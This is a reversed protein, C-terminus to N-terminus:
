IYINWCKDGDCVESPDCGQVEEQEVNLGCLPDDTRGDSCHSLTSMVAGAASSLDFEEMLEIAEERLFACDQPLDYGACLFDTLFIRCLAVLYTAAQQQLEGRSVGDVTFSLDKSSVTLFSPPSSTNNISNTTTATSVMPHPPFCEEVVSTSITTTTTNTTTTSPSSLTSSSSLSSSLSSSSSSASPFFYSRAAPSAHALFAKSNLSINFEDRSSSHPALNRKGFFQYLDFLDPQGVDQALRHLEQDFDELRYLHISPDALITGVMPAIHAIEVMSHEQLFSKFDGHLLLFDAFEQFRQYSCVYMCVYICMKMQIAQHVSCNLRVMVFSNYNMCAYVYVKLGQDLRM